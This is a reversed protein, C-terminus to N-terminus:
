LREIKRILIEIREVLQANWKTGSPAPRDLENLKEAIETVSNHGAKRLAKIFPAVELAFKQQANLKARRSARLPEGAVAPSVPLNVNLEIAAHGTKMGAHYMEGLVKYFLYQNYADVSMTAEIPKVLIRIVEEILAARLKDDRLKELLSLCLQMFDRNSHVM